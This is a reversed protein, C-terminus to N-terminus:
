PNPDTMQDILDATEDPMEIMADHLCDLRETRWDPHMEYHEHFVWFPSPKHRTCLIHMKRAISAEAGSLAPGESFCRIPHPTVKRQLWTRIESDTSWREFGSPPVLFGGTMSARVEAAREPSGVSFASQGSATPVFADLYVLASIHDPMRSAAGAIIFGGYSHGVLTVDELDEFRLVGCIDEVHIDPTIDPHALHAREGLGTLTPSFVRHGKARLRDEVKRWVWGGHWGGHVLVIDSM